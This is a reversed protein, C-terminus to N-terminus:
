LDVVRTAPDYEKKSFSIPTIGQPTKVLATYVEAIVQMDKFQRRFVLRKIEGEPLRQEILNNIPEPFHDIYTLHYIMKGSSQYYAEHKQNNMEFEVLFLEGDDQYSIASNTIDSEPFHRSHVKTIAPPLSQQETLSIVLPDLDSYFLILPLIFVYHM